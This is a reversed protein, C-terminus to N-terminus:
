ARLLSLLQDLYHGMGYDLWRRYPQDRAVYGLHGGHQELHLHVGSGFSARHFDAPDIFPDDEAHIIVTPQTIRHLHPMASSREYYDLSDRFGGMPATFADDFGKLSMRLHVPYRGQQILGDAERQRVYRVCGRLFYLNYIFHHPACILESCRALNIPPNVAIAADPKHHPGNMGDGLCLLLANASLSFGVGIVLTSPERRHVEAVVASIDPAVGSHYIGRALGRGEGCGRHNVTWVECGRRVGLDVVRRMYHREDNGGLGHFVCLVVKRAREPSEPSPAFVKAVLRDGDALTIETRTPTASFPPSRLYNGLLTQLYGSKAFRPPLCPQSPRDLKM